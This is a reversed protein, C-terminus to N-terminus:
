QLTVGGVAASGGGGELGIVKLYMKLEGRVTIFVIFGVLLGFFIVGTQGM